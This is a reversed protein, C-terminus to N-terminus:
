KDKEEKLKKVKKQEAKLTSEWYKIADLKEDYDAFPM